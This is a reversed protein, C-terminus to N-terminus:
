ADAMSQKMTVLDVVDEDINNHINVIPPETSVNVVPAEAKAAEVRVVPAKSASAVSNAIKAAADKDDQVYHAVIVGLIASLMIFFFIALVWKTTNDM